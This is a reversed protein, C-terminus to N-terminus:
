QKKCKYLNYALYVAIAILAVTGVLPLALKDNVARLKDLVSPSEAPAAADVAAAVRNPINHIKNDFVSTAPATAAAAVGTAAATVGIKKINHIKNDFVSSSGAGVASVINNEYLKGVKGYMTQKQSGNSSVAAALGRRAATGDIPFLKGNKGSETYVMKQPDASEGVNAQVYTVSKPTIKKLVGSMIIVIIVVVPFSTYPNSPAILLHIPV